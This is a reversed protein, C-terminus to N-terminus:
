IIHKRTCTRSYYPQLSVQQTYSTTVILKGASGDYIIRGDITIHSVHCVRLCHSNLRISKEIHAVLSESVLWTIVVSGLTVAALQLCFKRLSVESCICNRFREVDELTAKSWDINHESVMERFKHDVKKPKRKYAKSFTSLYTERRFVQIRQVHQEMEEKIKDSAHRDILHQLLSYNLFDWYGEATFFVDEVNEAKKIEEREEKVFQEHEDKLDGPLRTISHRLHRVDVKNSIMDDQAHLVLADFDKELQNIAKKTDEIM